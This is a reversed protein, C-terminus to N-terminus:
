FYASPSATNYKASVFKWINNKKELKISFELMWPNKMGHITADFKGIGKISGQWLNNLITAKPKGNLFSIGHYDFDSSRIVDLWEHKPQRYGTIHTLVFSEDLLQDLLRIDAKVMATHYSDLLDILFDEQKQLKKKLIQGKESEFFHEDNAQVSSYDRLHEHHVGTSKM